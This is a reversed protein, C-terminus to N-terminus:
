RGPLWEGREQPRHVRNRAYTSDKEGLVADKPFLAGTVQTQEKLEIIGNPAYITAYMDGSPGLIM